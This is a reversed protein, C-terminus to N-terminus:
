LEYAPFSTLWKINTTDTADACFIQHGNSLVWYNCQITQNYSLLQHLTKETIPVEPAKCEVLMWPKHDRNYVMIDFRKKLTGVLITKEVSLLAAPYCLMDVMCALMYQRVHEEPTLIIWKKRVNDWVFTKGEEQKLKLQINSYDLTIM